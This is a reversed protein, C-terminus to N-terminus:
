AAARAALGAASLTFPLYKYPQTITTGDDGRSHKPNGMVITASGSIRFGHFDSNVRLNALNTAATGPHMNGMGYHVGLANRRPRLSFDGEIRPNEARLYEVARSDGKSEVEDRMPNGDHSLILAGDEDEIGSPKVGHEIIPEIFPDPAEPM